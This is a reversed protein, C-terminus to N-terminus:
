VSDRHRKSSTEERTKKDREPEQDVEQEKNAQRKPETADADALRWVHTFRRTDAKHNIHAVICSLYAAATPGDRAPATDSPAFNASFALQFISVLCLREAEKFEKIDM